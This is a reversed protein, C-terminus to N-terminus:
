TKNHYSFKSLLMIEIECTMNQVFLIQVYLDLKYTEPLDSKAISIHMLYHDPIKHKQTCM